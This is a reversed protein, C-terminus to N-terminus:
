SEKIKEILGQIYVNPTIDDEEIINIIHEKAMNALNISANIKNIEIDCNLMEHEVIAYSYIKRWLEKKHEPRKAGCTPCFNVLSSVCGYAYDSIKEKYGGQFSKDAIYHQCWYEDKNM